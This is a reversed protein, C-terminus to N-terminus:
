SNELHDEIKKWEKKFTKWVTKIKVWQIKNDIWKTDQCLQEFDYGKLRKETTIDEFILM